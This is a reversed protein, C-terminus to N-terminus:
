INKLSTKKVADRLTELMLKRADELSVEGVPQLYEWWGHFDAGLDMRRFVNCKDIINRIKWFGKLIRGIRYVKVRDVV